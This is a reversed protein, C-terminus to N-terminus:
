PIDTATRTGEPTLQFYRRQSGEVRVARVWGRNIVTTLIRETRGPPFGIVSAIAACDWARQPEGHMAQLMRAQSPGVEPGSAVVVKIGGTTPADALKLGIALVALMTRNACDFKINLRKLHTRVTHKAIGLEAAIDGNGKGECVLGLVDLERDSIRVRRQEIM